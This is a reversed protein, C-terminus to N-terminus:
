CELSIIELAFYSFEVLLFLLGWHEPNRFTRDYFLWICIDLGSSQIFWNSQEAPSVPWVSGGNRKEAPLGARDM